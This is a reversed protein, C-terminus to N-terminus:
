SASAEITVAYIKNRKKFLSIFPYLYWTKPIRAFQWCKYFFNLLTNNLREGGYKFLKANIGNPGTALGVRVINIHLRYYLRLQNINRRHFEQEYQRYGDSIIKHDWTSKRLNQM